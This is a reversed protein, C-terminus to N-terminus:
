NEALTLVCTQRGASPQVCLELRFLVQGCIRERVGDVGHIAEDRVTRPRRSGARRPLEVIEQRRFMAVIRSRATGHGRQHALDPAHPGLHALAKSFAERLEDVDELLAHRAARTIRFVTPRGHREDRREDARHANCPGDCLAFDVVGMERKAVEFAQLGRSAIGFVTDLYQRVDAHFEASCGHRNATAVLPEILKKQPAGANLKVLSVWASWPLRGHQLLQKADRCKNIAKNLVDTTNGKAQAAQLEAIAKDLAVELEGPLGAVPAPWSALMADANKAGMAALQAPSLNNERAAAMLDRLMDAIAAEAKQERSALSFTSQGIDLRRAVDLLTRVEDPTQVSELAVRAIRSAEREDLVQQEPSVGLEFCFRQILQGCVSNITGIRAQGVAAALDLRGKKLLTSRARERLETAAKVTFTTAIVASARASKDELRDALLNTLHYTKGSGAGARVFEINMTQNGSM